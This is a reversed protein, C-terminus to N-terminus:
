LLRSYGALFAKASMEKKGAPKLKIIELCDQGCAIVLRNHKELIQGPKGRLDAVTAETIIIEKKGLTTRSKPWDHFARIERELQEAPKTWDIIGDVKTLKRSYTPTVDKDQEYSNLQGAIYAPLLEAMLEDSLEILNNTLTYSTEDLTMLLKKQGLLPGADMKEVLLMLSVGTRADGSLISFTIPDAGRWKPLLSFHSNAIGFPFYDIVDQSVIIGFDVLIGLRSRFPHSAVLASLEAKDVM